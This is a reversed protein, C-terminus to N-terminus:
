PANRPHPDVYACDTGSGSAPFWTRCWEMVIFAAVLAVVVSLPGMGGALGAVVVTTVFVVPVSKRLQTRSLRWVALVFGIASAILACGVAVDRVFPDSWIETLPQGYAGDSAPLSLQLGVLAATAATFACLLSSVALLAVRQVVKGRRCRNETTSPLSSASLGHPDQSQSLSHDSAM